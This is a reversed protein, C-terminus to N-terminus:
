DPADLRHRERKYMVLEEPTLLREALWHSLEQRPGLAPIEGRFLREAFDRVLAVKAAHWLAIGVFRAGPPAVGSAALSPAVDALYRAIDVETADAAVMGRIATAHAVAWEADSETPREFYHALVRQMVAAASEGRDVWNNAKRSILTPRM